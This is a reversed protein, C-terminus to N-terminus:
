AQREQEDGTIDRSYSVVERLQVPGDQGYVALYHKADALNDSSAQCMDDQWVQYEIQHPQEDRYRMAARWVYWDGHTDESKYEGDPEKETLLNNQRCYREFAERHMDNM